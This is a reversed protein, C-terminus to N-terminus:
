NIQRKGLYPIQDTRWYVHVGNQRPKGPSGLHLVRRHAKQEYIGRRQLRTSNSNETM